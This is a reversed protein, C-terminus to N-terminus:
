AAISETLNRVSGWKVRVDVVMHALREPTLRLPKLVVSVPMPPPSSEEDACVVASLWKATQLLSALRAYGPSGLPTYQWRIAEVVTVPFTWAKLLAAGADAQTFGVLAREADAFDRPFARPALSLTPELRGVAEDIAVMGASHLLGMTYALSIEEGAYEALTEAALACTISSRWYEDADMSYLSLPRSFIQADAVSSVMVHIADFGVANIADEVSLCHEGRRASFQSGMRLVRVTLGPDLRLLASVQQLTPDGNRLLTYLQPLVRPASPLADLGATVEELTLPTDFHINAPLM